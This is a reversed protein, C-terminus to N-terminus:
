SQKLHYQYKGQLIWDSHILLMSVNHDESYFLNTVNSIVLSCDSMSTVKKTQEHVVKCSYCKLIQFLVKQDGEWTFDLWLAYAVTPCHFTQMLPNLSHRHQHGLILSESTSTM